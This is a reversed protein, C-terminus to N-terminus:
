QSVADKRLFDIDTHHSQSYQEDAPQSCTNLGLLSQCVFNSSHKLLYNFISLTKTSQM